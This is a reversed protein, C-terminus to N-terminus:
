VFRACTNVKRWAEDHGRRMRLLLLLQGAPASGHQLWPHWPLLVLEEDWRLSQDRGLARATVGLGPGGDWRAM